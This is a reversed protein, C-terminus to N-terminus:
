ILDTTTIIGIVDESDKVLLAGQGDILLQRVSSKPTDSPIPIFKEEMLDVIETDYDTDAVLASESISGVIVGNEDKVPMQSFRNESMVVAVDRHTDTTQAYVVGDTMLDAATEADQQEAEQIVKWINYVTRYNADHFRKLMRSLAPASIGAKHAVEKQTLDSDQIKKKLSRMLTEYDLLEM